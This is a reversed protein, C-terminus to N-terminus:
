RAVELPFSLTREQDQFTMIYLGPTWSSVNVIPENGFWQTQEVLRGSLDKVEVVWGNASELDMRVWDTAPNPYLQTSALGIESMGISCDHVTLILADAFSCGTDTSGNLVISYTGPNFMGPSVYFYQNNSGDQWEYDYGLPGAILLPEDQCIITDNGITFDGADLEPVFATYATECGNDDTVNLIYTGPLINELIAVDSEFDNPGTWSLDYPTTGGSIEVSVSGDAAEDCSAQMIESTISWNEPETITRTITFTSGCTTTIDATYTGPSLDFIWSDTSTYGNPGSWSCDFDSGGNAVYPLIFGNASFDKDLPCTVNRQQADASTDYDISTSITVQAQGTQGAWGDLQVFYNAGVELCSSYLISRYGTCADDNAGVLEFTSFDGCDEVKYLALQTDFTTSDACTTITIPDSATATFELWGSSSVNGDSGCWSGSLGCAGSPAAPPSVEGAQASGGSTSVIVPPGDVEISAADCPVDHDIFLSEGITFTWLNGNGTGNFIGSLIGDMYLDFRSGGDGYSDVHILDVVSGTSVCFPGEMYVANNGYTTGGSGNNGAGDCGVNASNGGSAIFELSGCGAGSPTLEWYMEYGWADTDIVFEVATEGAACQAFIGNLFHIGFLILSLQVINKMVSEIEQKQTVLIPRSGRTRILTYNRLVMIAM